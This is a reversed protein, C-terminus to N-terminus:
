TSVPINVQIVTGCNGTILNLSGNMEEARKRMFKLGFGSSALEPNFGIGDDKITLLIHQFSYDLHVTIQTAGSHKIVNAIAEQAIRYLHTAVLPPLIPNEAHTPCKWTLQPYDQDEWLNHLFGHMRLVFESCSIEKQNLVWITERLHQNTDRTFDRLRLLQNQQTNPSLSLLDLRSIIHTLQSGIGDHLDRALRERQEHVANEIQLTKIQLKQWRNEAEWVAKQQALNLSKLQENTDNIVKQRYIWGLGIFYLQATMAIKFVMMDPLPLLVSNLNVLIYNTFFFLIIFLQSALLLWAPHFRKQLADAMYSLWLVVMSISAIIGFGYGTQIFFTNSITYGYNVMIICFTIALYLWWPSFRLWWKASSNSIVLFKRSFLLFFCIGLNLIHGIQIPNVYEYLHAYLFIGWGDNLLAYLTLCFMYVSFYLYIQNQHITYCSLSIFIVTLVMGIFIAWGRNIANNHRIFGPKDWFQVQYKMPFGPITESRIIITYSHNKEVPLDALFYRHNLPNFISNSLSSFGTAPIELIEGEKDLLWVKVADMFHTNMEMLISQTSNSKVGFFAWGTGGSYGFNVAPVEQWEPLPLNLVEPFTFRSNPDSFQFLQEVIVPPQGSTISIGKQHNIFWWSGIGLLGVILL